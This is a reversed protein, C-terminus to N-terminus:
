NDEFLLMMNATTGNNEFSIQASDLYGAMLGGGRRRYYKDRGKLIMIPSYPLSRKKGLRRVTGCVEKVDFGIGSDRVRVVFGESGEFVKVSVPLTPNNQNGHYFANEVIFCLTGGGRKGRRSSQNFHDVIRQPGRYQGVMFQQWLDSYPELEPLPPPAVYDRPAKWKEPPPCESYEVPIIYDFASWRFFRIRNMMQDLTLRSFVM